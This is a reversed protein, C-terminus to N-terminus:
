CASDSSSQREAIKNAPITFFLQFYYLLCWFVLHSSMLLSLDYDVFQLFTLQAFLNSFDRFFLYISTYLRCRRVDADVASPKRLVGSKILPFSCCVWSLDSGMVATQVQRTKGSLLSLWVLEPMQAATWAARTNKDETLCRVYAAKRGYSFVFCEHQLALLFCISLLSPHTMSSGPKM